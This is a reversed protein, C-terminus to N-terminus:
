CTYSSWKNQIKNEEKNKWNKEGLKKKVRLEIQLIVGFSSTNNSLFFNTNKCFFTAFFDILIIVRQIVLMWGGTNFKQQRINLNFKKYIQYWAEVTTRILM